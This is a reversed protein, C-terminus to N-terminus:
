ILIKADEFRSEHIRDKISKIEKYNRSTNIEYINRAKEKWVVNKNIRKSIFRDMNRIQSLAFLSDDTEQSSINSSPVSSSRMQKRIKSSYIKKKMEFLPIPSHSNKITQGKITISGDYFNSLNHQNM